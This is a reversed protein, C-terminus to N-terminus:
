CRDSCPYSPMSLCLFREGSLMVGSGILLTWSGVAQFIFAVKGKTRDVRLETYCPHGLLIFILSFFFVCSFLKWGISFPVLYLCALPAAWENEASFSRDEEETLM